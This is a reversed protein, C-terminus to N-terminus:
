PGGQDPRQRQEPQLEGALRQVGEEGERRARALDRVRREGPRSEREIRQRDRRRDREVAERERARAEHHRLRPPGPERPPAPETHQQHRSAPKEGPAALQDVRVPAPM